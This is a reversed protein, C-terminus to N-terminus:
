SSADNGPQDNNDSRGSSETRNRIKDRLWAAAALTVAAALEALYDPIADILVHVPSMPPASPQRAHGAM